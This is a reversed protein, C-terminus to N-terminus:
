NYITFRDYFLQIKVIIKVLLPPLAAIGIVNKFILHFKRIIRDKSNLIM